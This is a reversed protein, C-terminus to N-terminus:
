NLPFTADGPINFKNIALSTLEKTVDTKNACKHIKTARKLCETIYLMLYIIVRDTTNLLQGVRADYQKHFINIRFFNIADDIVDAAGSGTPAPGKFQTNLPLIAMKCVSNTSELSSYLPVNLVTPKVGELVNVITKTEFLGNQPLMVSITMNYTGPMLNKWFEGKKTTKVAKGGNTFTIKAKPVFNGKIDRIVGKIGRHIQEIYAILSERHSIFLDRLASSPPYKCCDVEITVGMGSTKYYIYDQHSNFISYWEAGNTVGNKLNGHCGNKKWMTPHDKAYKESIHLIFLHDDSPLFKRLKTPDGDLPY